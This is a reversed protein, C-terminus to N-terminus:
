KNLNFKLGTLKQLDFLGIEKRVNVINNGSNEFIYCHVLNLSKTYVIKWCQTPVSVRGIKKFEGISGCFVRISDYTIALKKCESELQKWTGRNLGSYQPTMNSFYFSESEIKAGECMAYDCPFNHGKDFGAKEYDKNLGTELPLFPDPKFDNVRPVPNTCSVM